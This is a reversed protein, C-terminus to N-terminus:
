RKGNVEGGNCVNAELAKEEDLFWTKNLDRVKFYWCSDPKIVFDDDSFDDNEGTYDKILEFTTISSITGFDIEGENLYYIEKGLLDILEEPEMGVNHFIKDRKMKKYCYLTAKVDALSNHASEDWKYGYYKACTSLTQWRYDGHYEDWEGFIPAFDKMVDTTKVANIACYSFGACILFKLDFSVNYGIICDADYLIKQITERHEDLTKCNKVMAPSINHIAEADNWSEHRVPKIYENFLISGKEDIISLQLIEDLQPDLGTTKVDLVITKNM